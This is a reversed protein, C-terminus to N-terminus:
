SAPLQRFRTTGRWGRGQPFRHHEGPLHEGPPRRGGEEPKLRIPLGQLAKIGREGFREKTGPHALLQERTVTPHFLKILGSREYIPGENQEHNSFTVIGVIGRKSSGEWLFQRSGHPASKLCRLYTGAPDDGVLDEEDPMYKQQWTSLQDPLKDSYKNARRNVQNGPNCSSVLHLRVTDQQSLDDLPPQPELGAEQLAITIRQKAATTLRKVGFTSALSAVKKWAVRESERAELWARLRAAAVQDRNQM